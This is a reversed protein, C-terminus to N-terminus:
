GEFRYFHMHTDGFERMDLFACREPLVPVVDAREELIILAGPM